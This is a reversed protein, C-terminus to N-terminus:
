RVQERLFHMITISYDILFADLVQLIISVHRHFDYRCPNNINNVAELCGSEYTFHSFGRSQALAIGMKMALLEALLADENPRFYSFGAIWDGVHNRILGGIGM